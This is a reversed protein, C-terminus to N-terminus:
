VTAALRQGLIYSLTICRGHSVGPALLPYDSGFFNGMMNGVAYLGPIPNDDKDLCQMNPDVNMSGVSVLLQSQIPIAYFPSQEITYLLHPEKGFDEDKGKRALESYRVVTEELAKAPVGIKEALAAISDAKFARKHEVSDELLAMPEVVPGGMSTQLTAMDKEYKSDVIAWAKKGPQLFRSSSQQPDPQNENEYRLGLRNIHLLNQNAVMLDNGFPPAPITHVMVPFPQRVLTAGAWLAMAIGDGMNGGIPEYVSTEAYEGWPAWAKLMEKNETYGGTALIVAKKAVFKLYAGKQKGIVGTIRGSKDKILQQAPTSYHIEVGKEKCWREVLEMFFQETLIYESGKNQAGGTKVWNHATPYGPSTRSVTYPPLVKIGLGDAEALDIYHDFVEGSKYAWLRVLSQHVRNQSYNVLDAILAETDITYGAAKQAKTNVAANDKGRVSFTRFKELVVVKAGQEAASHAAILGAIGAGLVIIDASVTSKIESDAIPAPPVEWSYKASTATSAGNAGPADASTAAAAVSAVGAATAVGAVGAVLSGKLFERRSNVKSTEDNQKSM